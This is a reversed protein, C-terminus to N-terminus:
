ITVPLTFTFTSGVGPVSDDLWIDGGMSSVLLRSIYLGLGTSNSDNRALIKSGAQQFKRFLLSQNTAEIGIGTDKVKIQMFPKKVETSIIISGKDTFKVANGILNLLVQETHGEDGLAKASTEAPIYQLSINKKDAVVKLNKIVRNIVESIDFEEKKTEVKGQELRSVELFDNVINILRVSASDIDALMERVDPDPIKELYMDLLMDANGRIATLPTRLEHSAISFFEDKSREMVKAETIDEIIIVHGIVEDVNKIPACFVRLFRKYFIIEKIEVVSQKELCEKCYNILDFGDFLKAVEAIDVPNKDTGLISLIAPNSLIVKNDMDSIIFGFSLSNISALLRAKEESLERTRIKVTEEVKAKENEIDELLNTIARKSDGLEAYSETLEEVKKDLEITREKVKTELITYSEKLKSTMENFSEALQGIENPTDISLKQDLNGGSIKKAAFNLYVIDKTIKKSLYFGILFISVITAIIIILSYIIIQITANYAELVPMEVIVSWNPVGLDVHKAAVSDGNIGKSIEIGNDEETKINALFEKVEELNSLNVRALVKNTDKYAILNGKEDVVYASGNQGVQISSVVNWMSKLNLEAVLAMKPEKFINYIPVAVFIYPENTLSDIYVPSIYNLGEQMSLTIGSKIEPTIQSESINALRSVSASQQWNKDVIFLNNFADNRGLLNSFVLKKEENTATLLSGIDAADSLVSINNQVFNKVSNSAGEAIINLQNAIVKQQTTFNFFIQLIM